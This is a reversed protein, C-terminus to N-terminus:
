SADRRKKLEPFRDDTDGTQQKLQSLRHKLNKLTSQYAPDAIVNQMERPDKRLDYLEWHPPTPTKVAGPADLPLGYFFILKFDKTRIGYHAPNDHHAMHMWYRYYTADPWDAPTPEGKLIPLFSRGQMFEPKKVGAMELLTPAFDVNNIMTDNKSHAKIWKPYRAIFPMRLSEEYMWRKDIYDHEGLMFGQDATYVIITNELDGTAKLHEVLRKINDDVGRVCRLFKKLYRQYAEGTYKEASLNEDVFMHHGMNRRKNRPGVSTGYLAQGLPGHKGRTRLSEPEPITVDQYLWDYREANEFNDHPAKFHHMLFFPKKKQKRSKLWKLSIDTIADSSHKSDYRNSRFENKPWPKPGRVRFVPNFYSGQGPLVTYFDFAAPEKKLHWKGIMATEYGADKILRALHQHEEGIAGNLTTVGNVHSYQGTMLTARSPTCISNTCFVNKLLMGESALRDLTPTPNVVALRGQYAGISHAAHDDSMIYLINPKQEAARVVSTTM